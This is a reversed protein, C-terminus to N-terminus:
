TTSCRSSGDWAMASSPLTTDGFPYTTTTVGIKGKPVLETHRLTSKNRCLPCTFRNIRRLHFYSNSCSPKLYAPSKLCMTTISGGLKLNELTKNFMGKAPTRATLARDLIKLPEYRERFSAPRASPELEDLDM